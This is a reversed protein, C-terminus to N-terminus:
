LRSDILCQPIWTGLHMGRSPWAVRLNANGLILWSKLPNYLSESFDKTKNIRFGGSSPSKRPRRFFRSCPVDRFMGSCGLVDRFMSYNHYNHPFFTFNFKRSAWTVAWIPWTVNHKKERASCSQRLHIRVSSSEVTSFWNFLIRPRQNNIINQTSAPMNWCLVVWSTKSRYSWLVFYATNCNWVYPLGETLLSFIEREMSGALPWGFLSSSGSSSKTWSSIFHLGELVYLLM